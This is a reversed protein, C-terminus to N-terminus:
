PAREEFSAVVTAPAGDIQVVAGPAFHSRHIYGMAVPGYRPSVAATTVRGVDREEARMASGPAAPAALSLRRLAKNVNGGRGELRAVTEQGLYCGKIAAHCEAVLGTEHLLNEESVDQEYWPRLTEVRLADLAERGVPRAGAACLADWVPRAAEQAVHLVFGGGPLDGARVVVAEHGAITVRVHAEPEHPLPHAGAKELREGARLGLAALVATPRAAFRVPAAVRHHELTGRVLDLRSSDTELRLTDKGVLVRLLAQVHGKTTLLAARCGQGPPRLVDNSLMGQLFKQRQPGSVELVGREALDVLGAGDLAAAYEGDPDGYSAVVTQGRRDRFVAGGAAHADHLIFAETRSM